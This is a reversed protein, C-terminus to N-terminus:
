AAAVRRPWANSRQEHWLLLEHGRRFRLAALVALCPEDRQEGAFRLLPFLPISHDRSLLDNCAWQPWQIRKVVVFISHHDAMLNVGHVMWRFSHEPTTYTTSVWIVRNM